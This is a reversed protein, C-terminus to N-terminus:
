LWFFELLGCDIGDRATPIRAFVAQPQANSWGAMEDDTIFSLWPRLKERSSSVLFAADSARSVMLVPKRM